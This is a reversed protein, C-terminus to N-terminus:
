IKTRFRCATRPWRMRWALRWSAARLEYSATVFSGCRDRIIRNAREGCGVFRARNLACLILTCHGASWREASPPPVCWVSASTSAATTRTLAAATTRARSGDRSDDWAGGRVVFSEGSEDAATYWPADYKSLCWEWVNGALDLVGQASAGAPYLGVAVTRELDSEWTNCRHDDWETGWPYVIRPDGGTAAQQWEPETPLRAEFGLRIRCGAASPSRRTGPSPRGRGTPIPGGPIRPSTTRALRCTM